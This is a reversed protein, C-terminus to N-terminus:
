EVNCSQDHLYECSVFRCLVEVARKMIRAARAHPCDLLTLIPTFTGSLMCTTILHGQNGSCLFPVRRLYYAAHVAFSLRHGFRAFAMGGHRVALTAVPASQM